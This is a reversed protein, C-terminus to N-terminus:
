LLYCQILRLYYHCSLKNGVYADLLSEALALQLHWETLETNDDIQVVCSQKEVAYQTIRTHFADYDEFALLTKIFFRREGTISKNKSSEQLADFLDNPNCGLESILGELLREIMDTFKQFVAYQEFTYGVGKSLKDETSEPVFLTYNNELFQTISNQWDNGQLFQAVADILFENSM